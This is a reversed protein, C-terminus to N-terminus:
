NKKETDWDKKREKEIENKGDMESKITPFFIELFLDDNLTSLDLRARLETHYRLNHVKFGSRTVLLSVCLVDCWLIYSVM